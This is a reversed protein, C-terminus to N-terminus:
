GLNNEIEKDQKSMPILLKNRNMIKYGPYLGQQIDVIFQERTLLNKRSLDLFIENCGTKNKQLVIVPKASNLRFSTSGKYRKPDDPSIILDKKELAKQLLKALKEKSKTRKGYKIGILNNSFDMIDEDIAGFGLIENLLGFGISTIANYEQAFVGAVYAHRFADVDNNHFKGTDFDWTGDAKKPLKRINKDFYQYAEEEAENKLSYFNKM